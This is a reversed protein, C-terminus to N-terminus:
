SLQAKLARYDTKGTGLVPIKEVSCVRRIFHLPSLGTQGIVANAEERSIPRISFLVLEPQDESPTSEVALPIDSDDEHTFHQLLAEEVAPLSVMEGGLKVFRKLRGTFVLTGDTEERVLDGTRYWSKGAFEVFPSEGDYNLYGGFISPGRVLLMGAKGQAAPKGTDLDLLCHEVSPLPKGITGSRPADFRNVSLVPSCETIGYGELVRMGPSRRALVEYLSDPCKEAGTIVMRLSALQADSATRVIGALFTPTGILMTVRYAELLRALLGGDTPNPSYVVPLGACLPLLMTGTLGFSHFPPLFGIMR